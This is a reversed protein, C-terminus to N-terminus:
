KLEQLHGPWIKEITNGNESIFLVDFRKQRHSCDQSVIIGIRPQETNIWGGAPSLELRSGHKVLDGVKM